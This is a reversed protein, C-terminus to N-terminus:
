SSNKQQFYISILALSDLEKTGIFKKIPFMTMIQDIEMTGVSDLPLTPPQNSDTIAWEPLLTLIQELAKKGKNRKSEAVIM